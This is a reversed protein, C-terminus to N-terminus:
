RSSSSSSSAWHGRRALARGTGLLMGLWLMAFAFLVLLASAPSRTRARRHPHALRRGPRRRTLVAVGLMAAALEALVHGLLFASRAMPLSRFRDVIGESLDTAISTAPGMIGFALTQVLIGGILYEHYDAAAPIAIAGGFVYAFLLVFM